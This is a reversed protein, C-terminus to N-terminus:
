YDKGANSRKDKAILDATAQHRYGIIVMFTLGAAVKEKVVNKAMSIIVNYGGGLQWRAMEDLYKGQTVDPAGYRETLGKKAATFKDILDDEKTMLFVAVSYMKGQYFCVDITTDDFEAFPGNFFRAQMKNQTYDWSPIRITNPRQKMISMAQEESAGWPIGLVKDAKVPVVAADDTKVPPNAALPKGDKWEGEYLVKGSADKEVGYGNRRGNKFSGVYERGDPSKYTANGEELGAKYDGDFSAGHSWKLSARGDLLGAIMEVEGRGKVERGNELRFSVTLIGKGEAKGDVVPGTWSASSLAASSGVWGIKAGSAPDAVWSEAACAITSVAIMILGTLLFTLARGGSKMHVGGYNFFYQTAYIIRRISEALVFM